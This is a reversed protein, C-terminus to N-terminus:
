LSNFKLSKSRLNHQIHNRKGFLVRQLDHTDKSSSCMTQDPDTTLIYITSKSPYITFFSSGLVTDWNCLLRSQPLIKIRITTLCRPILIIRFAPLVIVILNEDLTNHHIILVQRTRNQAQRHYISRPIVLM